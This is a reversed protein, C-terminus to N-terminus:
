KPASQKCLTAGLSLLADDRPRDAVAIREWGPGCAEAAADSIAAVATGERSLSLEALRRGARPSHVLVVTGPLQDLGAPDAIARSRYVVVSTVRAESTQPMRRDEGCLHLLPVEAAVTSLLDDIGAGGTSKVLLGAAHAAAATAAGVAHVPLAALRQLQPGAWRVANASTLLLADFRAPDPAIWELPEIAFLPLAFARLGRAEARRVTESAGPEPRLVALPRM